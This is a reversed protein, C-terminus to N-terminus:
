VAATNGKPTMLTIKSGDTIGEAITNGTHTNRLTLGALALTVALAAVHQKL